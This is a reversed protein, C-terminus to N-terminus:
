VLARCLCQVCPMCDLARARARAPVVSWQKLHELCPRPRRVRATHCVLLASSCGCVDLLASSVVTLLLHILRTFLFILSDPSVAARM